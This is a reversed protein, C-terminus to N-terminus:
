VPGEYAAAPEPEPPAVPEGPPPAPAVPAPTEAEVFVPGPAAPARAVRPESARLAPPRAAPALRTAPLLLKPERARMVTEGLWAPSASRALRREVVARITRVPRPEGSM